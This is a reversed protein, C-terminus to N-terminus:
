AWPMTGLVPKLREARRGKAQPRFTVGTLLKVLRKVNVVMFTLLAQIRYRDLGLYRCREFGHWQKAIGFPQEVRYRQRKREQYRADAELEIWRQRNADQKATRYTNLTIAIALGDANLRAYIDTDDYAKDGGYAQTPLNLARDHERVQAFVKNDASSGPTVVVTTVIGTEANVSAHTKYGQYRIQQTVTTGDPQTTRRKGKNVVRADPDRPKGGRDQRERDKDRNVNAQTHVSDLVQLEGLELGHARAQALMDDFVSELVTWHSGEVFRGKFVSLTSHDPPSEDVAIGLFWKMLLHLDALQVIERESVNYLYSLFLVKLVLAPRLPPRGVEGRGKYLQIMQESMADWDFLKDLAVLFHDPHRELVREYVLAGFFSDEGTERYRRRSTM